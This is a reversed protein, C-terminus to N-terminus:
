CIDNETFKCTETGYGNCKTSCQDETTKASSDPATNGCYCDSGKTTGYVSYGAASCKQYCYSNTQYLYPGQTSLSDSVDTYCGLYTGKNPSQASVLMAPAMLMLSLWLRRPFSFIGM